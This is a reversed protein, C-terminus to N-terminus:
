VGSSKLPTPRSRDQAHMLFKHLPDKWNNTYSDSNLVASHGLFENSGYYNDTTAHVFFEFLVRAHLFASDMAYVQVNYGGKQLKLQDQLSWETAACLMWCLEYFLHLKLYEEKQGPDLSATNRGM